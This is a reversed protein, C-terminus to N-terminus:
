TETKTRSRAGRLEKVATGPGAIGVRHFGRWAEEEREGGVADEGGDLLGGDGGGAAAVEEAAELVADVIYLALVADADDGFEVPGAAPAGLGDEVLVLEEAGEGLVFDGGDGGEGEGVAAGEVFHFVADAEGEEGFGGAPAGLIHGELIETLNAAEETTNVVDRRGRAERVAGLERGFGVAVVAEGADEGEGVHGGAEAAAEFAGGFVENREAAVEEAAGLREDDVGVAVASVEEAAPFAEEEEIEVIHGGRGRDLVDPQEERGAGRIAGELAVGQEVAVLHEAREIESRDAEDLGEAPEAVQAVGGPDGLAEVIGGERAGERLEARGRIPLTQEGVDVFL